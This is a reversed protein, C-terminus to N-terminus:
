GKSNQEEFETWRAIAPWLASWTILIAPCQFPFDWWAYALSLLLGFVACASFPNEWFYSRTLSFIWYGGALFIFSMGVFGLEIPFQAIDNHAHEWFGALDPHRHQYEPFLFQYSSAGIGTLWNDQLMEISAATVRERMALSSDQRTIGQKM